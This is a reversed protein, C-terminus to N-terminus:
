ATVKRLSFEQHRWGNANHDWFANFGLVAEAQRQVHLVTTGVIRVDQGVEIFRMTVQYSRYLGHYKYRLIRDDRGGQTIGLEATGWVFPGFQKLLMHGHPGVHSSDQIRISWSGNVDLGSFSLFYEKLKMMIAIIGGIATLSFGITEKNSILWDM